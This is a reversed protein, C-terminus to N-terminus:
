GDDELEEEVAMSSCLFSCFRRRGCDFDGVHECIGGSVLLFGAFYWFLSFCFVRFSVKVTVLYIRLLMFLKM